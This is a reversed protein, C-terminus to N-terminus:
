NTRQTRMKEVEIIKKKYAPYNNREKYHHLRFDRLSSFYYKCAKGGAFADVVFYLGTILFYPLRLFM